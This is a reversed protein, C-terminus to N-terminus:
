AKNLEDRISSLVFGSIVFVGNILEALRINLSFAAAMNAIWSNEVYNRDVWDAFTLVALKAVFVYDLTGTENGDGLKSAFAAYNLVINAMLDKREETDYWNNKQFMREISGFGYRELLSWVTNALRRDTYVGVGYNVQFSLM